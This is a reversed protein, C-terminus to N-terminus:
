REVLPIGYEVVTADRQALDDPPIEPSPFVCHPSPEGAALLFDDFAAPLVVAHLQTCHSQIEYSWPCGPPAYAFDGPILLQESGDLTAKVAM